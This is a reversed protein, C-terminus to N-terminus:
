KGPAPAKPQNPAFLDGFFDGKFWMPRQDGDAMARTIRYNIEAFRAGEEWLIPQSMDDSPRHYHNVSFDAWAEKGGNAWGTALFVAPVGQRVFM